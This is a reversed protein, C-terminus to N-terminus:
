RFVFFGSILMLIWGVIPHFCIRLYRNQPIFGLGYIWCICMGMIMLELPGHPVTKMDTAIARPYIVIVGLLIIATLFSLVRLFTQGRAPQPAPESIKPNTTM